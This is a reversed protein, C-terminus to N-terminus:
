CSSDTISFYRVSLTFGKNTGSPDLPTVKLIKAVTTDWLVCMWPGLRTLSLANHGQQVGLFYNRLREPPLPPICYIISFLLASGRAHSPRWASM